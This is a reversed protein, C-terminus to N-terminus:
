QHPRTPALLQELFATFSSTSIAKHTVQYLFRGTALDLRRLHNPSPTPALKETVEHSRPISM